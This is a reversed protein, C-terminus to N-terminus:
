AMGRPSRLSFDQPNYSLGKFGKENNAMSAVVMRRACIITSIPEIKTGRFIFDYKSKWLAWWLTLVWSKSQPSIPPNMKGCYDM